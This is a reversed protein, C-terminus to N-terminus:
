ADPREVFLREPDRPRGRRRYEFHLHSGRAIGTHGVEGVVQGRRVHQGEFVYVAKCHAYFAVTGDPHITILLNGYGRMGNDAYAVLGDRAARIPTGEPAGIDVGAHPKRRKPGRKVRGFGRWLKGGLVPWTLARDDVVADRDETGRAGEAAAQVWEPRPARLLLHSATKSEGLGLQQARSMAEGRPAAVRRPGQCFGRYRGRRICERGRSPKWQSPRAAEIAARTDIDGAPPAAADGRGITPWTALTAAAWALASARALGARRTM